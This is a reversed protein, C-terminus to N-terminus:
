KYLSFKIIIGILILVVANIMMSKFNKIKFALILKMLNNINFLHHAFQM